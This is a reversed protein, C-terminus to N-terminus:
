RSAAKALRPQTAVGFKFEALVRRKVMSVFTECAHVTKFDFHRAAEEYPMSDMKVAMFVQMQRKPLRKLIAALKAELEQRELEDLPDATEAALVHLEVPVSDLRRRERQLRRVRDLTLRMGITVIWTSLSAGKGPHFSEIKEFAKRFTEVVLEDVHPATAFGRSRLHRGIMAGIKGSEREFVANQIQHDRSVLGAVVIAQGDGEKNM